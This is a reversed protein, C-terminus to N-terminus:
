LDDDDGSHLVGCIFIMIWEADLLACMCLRGERYKQLVETYSIDKKTQQLTHDKKKKSAGIM